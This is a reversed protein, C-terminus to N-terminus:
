AAERFPIALHAQGDILAGARRKGVREAFWGGGLDISRKASWGFSRDAGNVPYIMGEREGLGAVYEGNQKHFFPVRVPELQDRIARVHRPDCFRAMPGSEGGTIVWGLRPGSVACAGRPIEVGAERAAAACEACATAFDDAFGELYWGRGRCKPCPLWSRHFVIAGLLPEASVGYVAANKRGATSKLLQPIRLDAMAQNETSTMLWVRHAIEDWFDPLEREILQPRKTVIIVILHTCERILAWADPRWIVSRHNDMFDSLSNLFVTRPRGLEPDIGGNAAAERQWRRLDAWGQKCYSRAGAPGWEVRHKRLDWDREAYCHDCGASVKTCGIWLNATSDAWQILTKRAM